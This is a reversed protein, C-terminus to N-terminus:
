EEIDVLSGLEKIVIETKSNLLKLISYLQQTQPNSRDGSVFASVQGQVKVSSWGPEKIVGKSRMVKRLEAAERWKGKAAYINALTTHTTACNPVLKLIEEACRRGCDVNGHVTCSRLLTSWVVDDQQFPMSRIMHEADILRGARCLIDIMCGYHEKSPFIEYETQMSRFYSFGLAVLGAHSCATLVGIFTVADPKLGVKPINEFLDIAEKCFGHEAYGIIMTTWSVIDHHFSEDFVKSAEKISGCKSYMSILSSHIMSMHELGFSIIYAHLQKGQDLIAMSGCFSLVSSLAFEDPPPGDRRMWSLYEFAKEGHSEQSYGDIITSWTVIDRSSLGHFIMSASTLHGCKSYLTVLSNAVSLYDALGQQLVHSHLQKGWEVRGLSACGSIVSAFTYENPVVGSERMRVFADIAHEKQGMQAFTAIITTWSVVDQTGMKASLYLGYNLKGCKYYLTALSNAVFSNDDFGKKVTQAHIERGQNLAGLGACAKLAIAFAYADCGVKSRWMDSFYLLGDSSCGAHVLGTIIATWSVVNRTPMHDFVRCGFEISGTKTYMNLVASSVFVSNILGSKISYAHLLEGFYLNMTLGCAKLALSVVFPDMRLGPEVWMNSFLHLAEFAGYINVYGSIMNTWSVEDRQRMKDFLKRADNLHGKKVLQKIRDNLELVNVHNIFQMEKVLQDEGEQKVLVNKCEMSPIALGTFIKRIPPRILLVMNRCNLETRDNEKQFQDIYSYGNTM